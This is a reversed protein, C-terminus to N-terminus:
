LRGPRDPPGQFAGRAKSAVRALVVVHGWQGPPASTAPTASMAMLGRTAKLDPRVSTGPSVPPGPPVPRVWGTGPYTWSDEWLYLANIDLVAWLEGVVMGSLVALEDINAVSGTIQLDRGPPGTPGVRGPWGTQAIYIDPRMVTTQVVPIVIGVDIDPRVVDVVIVPQESM